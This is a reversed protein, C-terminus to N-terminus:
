RATIERDFTVTHKIKYSVVLADELTATCNQMEMVLSHSNRDNVDKGPNTTM